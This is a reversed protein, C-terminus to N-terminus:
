YITGAVVRLFNIRTFDCSFVGQMTRKRRNLLFTLTMVETLIKKTFINFLIM